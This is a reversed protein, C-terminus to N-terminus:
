IAPSAGYARGVFEYAFHYVGGRDEIFGREVLTMLSFNRHNFGQYFKEMAVMMFPDWSGRKQAFLVLFVAASENECTGFTDWFGTFGKDGDVNIDKPDVAVHSDLEIAHM